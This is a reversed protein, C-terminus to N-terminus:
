KGHNSLKDKTYKILVGRMKSGRKFEVTEYFGFRIHNYVTQISKNDLKAVESVSLLVFQENM